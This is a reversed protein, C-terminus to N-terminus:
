LFYGLISIVIILLVVERKSFSNIKTYLECMIKYGLKNSFKATSYVVLVHSILCVFTTILMVIAEKTIFSIDGSSIGVDIIKSMLTPLYLECFVQSVSFIIMIFIYKKLSGMLKFIKM